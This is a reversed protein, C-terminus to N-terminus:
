YFGLFRKGIYSKAGPNKSLLNGTKVFLRDREGSERDIKKRDM